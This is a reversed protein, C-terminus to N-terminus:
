QRLSLVSFIISVLVLIVFSVTKKNVLIRDNYIDSCVDILFSVSNIAIFTYIPVSAYSYGEPVSAVFWFFPVSLVLWVYKKGVQKDTTPVKKFLYIINLTITAMLIYLSIGFPLMNSLYQLLSRYLAGDLAHIVINTTVLLMIVGLKYKLLDRKNKHNQTPRVWLAVGLLVLAILILGNPVDQNIVVGFLLFIPLYFIKKLAALYSLSSTANLTYFTLYQGIPWGIFLIGVWLLAQKNSLLFLIHEKKWTLCCLLIAPIVAYRLYSSVGVPSMGKEQLKRSSLQFFKFLISQLFILGTVLIEPQM